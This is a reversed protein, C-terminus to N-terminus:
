QEKKKGTSSSAGQLAFDYSTSSLTTYVGTKKCEIPAKKSSTQQKLHRQNKTRETLNGTNTNGSSFKLSLGTVDFNESEKISSPVSRTHKDQASACLSKSENKSRGPKRKMLSPFLWHENKCEPCTAAAVGSAESQAEILHGTLCSEHIPHHRACPLVRVSSGNVFPTECLICSIKTVSKENRDILPLAFVLHKYIPYEEDLSLLLSYDDDQFERRGIEAISSRGDIYGPTVAVTWQPPFQCINAKVFPHMADHALWTSGLQQFCRKCLDYPNRPDCRACRYFNARITIRCGRCKIMPMLFKSKKKETQAIDPISPWAARCIPCHVSKKESRKHTAYMRLCRKHFNNGCRTECHCLINQEIDEQLFDDQCIPCIPDDLLSKPSM